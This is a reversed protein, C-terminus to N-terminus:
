NENGAGQALAGHLVAKDPLTVTLENGGDDALYLPSLIPMEYVAMDVGHAVALFAPSLVTYPTRLYLRTGSLYATTNPAGRVAVPILGATVPGAGDLIRRMAENDAEAPLPTQLAVKGRPGIQDLTVNANYYSVKRQAQLSLTVPVHVGELLVILNSQANYRKPALILVNGPKATLTVDFADKDGVTNSEIPWPAGTRDLFSLSTAYGDSLLITQPQVGPSLTVYITKTSSEPPTRKTAAEQAERDRKQIEEIQPNSFPSLARWAEEFAEASVGAPVPADGSGKNKSAPPKAAAQAGNGVAMAAAVALLVATWIKNTKRM